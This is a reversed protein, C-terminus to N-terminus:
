KKKGGAARLTRAAKDADAASDFALFLLFKSGLVGASTYAWGNQLGGYTEGTLHHSGDYAFTRVGDDPNKDQEADAAGQLPDNLRGVTTTRCDAALEDVDAPM